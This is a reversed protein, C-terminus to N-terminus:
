SHIAQMGVIPYRADRDAKRALYDRLMGGDMRSRLTHLADVGFDARRCLKGGGTQLAGDPLKGPLAVIQQLLAAGAMITRCGIDHVSDGAEIAPRCQALIGGGDVVSTAHHITVGVCEPLGDVLPWFNTASGRYYPSLGLHMNVIRGKFHSLLPERIISSGFLVVRDIASDRLLEFLEASSAEQWRLDRAALAIEAHSAPAGRFWHAESRSRAALYDQIEAAESATAGQGQQPKGEASVCVLQAVEALRAAVWRHRQSNSTLLAIRNM